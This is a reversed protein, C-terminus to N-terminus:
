RATAMAIRVSEMLHQGIVREYTRQAVGYFDWRRKYNPMDIFMLVPKVASGSAFQYRAWVGNGLRGNTGPTGVFYEPGAKKRRRKRSATTQNQYPDFNAKLQSLIKSYQGRSLNGYNDLAAGSGPAIAKGQPLYGRASLLREIRKTNRQGGLIQASLYKAAPTGKGFDDKLWVRAVLSKKTAPKLYLSNMTYPTPNVFVRRMEATNAQKIEAGVKTLTRAIAFDAHKGMFSKLKPMFQALDQKLVVDM